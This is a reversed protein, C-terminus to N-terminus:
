EVCNRGHGSNPQDETCTLAKDKREKRLAERGWPRCSKLTVRLNLPVEPGCQGISAMAMDDSM